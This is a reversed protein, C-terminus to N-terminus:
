HIFAWLPCLLTCYSCICGFLWLTNAFCVFPSVFNAFVYTFCVFFLIWFMGCPPAFPDWGSAFNGCTIYFWCFLCVVWFLCAICLSGFLLSMYFLWFTYAFGVLTFIFTGYLSTWVLELFCVIYVVLNLVGYLCLTWLSVFVCQWFLSLSMSFLRLCLIVGLFYWLPVWSFDLKVM